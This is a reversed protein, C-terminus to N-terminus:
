VGKCKSVHRTLSSYLVEKGCKYCLPKASHYNKNHQHLDSTDIDCKDCHGRKDSTKRKKGTEAMIMRTKQCYWQGKMESWRWWHSRPVLKGKANLKPWTEGPTGRRTPPGEGIKRPQTHTPTILASTVPPPFSRRPM